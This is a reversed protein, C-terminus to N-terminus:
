TYLVLLVLIFLIASLILIACFQKPGGSLKVLEATKKTLVDATEQAANVEEDLEDLMENQSDIEKSISLSLQGLRSVSEGLINLNADQERRQERLQALQSTSFPDHADGSDSTPLKSYTGSDRRDRGESPWSM